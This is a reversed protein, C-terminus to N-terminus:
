CRIVIRCIHQRNDAAVYVSVLFRERCARLAIEGIGRERTKFTHTEWCDCLVFGEFEGFCDFMVQCIKGTYEHEPRKTPRKPPVGNPSPEINGSDGGLGDVRGALYSIYRKLVPYWRSTSPMQQLRWKMIALTNEEPFLMVDGATVPIKIQFTGIVYRWNGPDKRAADPAEGTGESRVLGEEHERLALRTVHGPHLSTARAINAVHLPAAEAARAVAIGVQDRNRRTAVRRVIIDFEQGKVVSPPLDLTFLGAFNPGTDPPIPVYTVGRTTKCEITHPDAASLLHSGYLQGALKLVQNADVQPWYIQATSGVPVRGWDIMLEDPYNLLSGPLEILPKSPRIINQIHTSRPTLM